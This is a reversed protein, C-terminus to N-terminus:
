LMKKRTITIMQISKCNAPYQCHLEHDGMSWVDWFLKSSMLLSTVPGGESDPLGLLSRAQSRSMSFSLNHPIQGSYGDYGHHGKSHIYIVSILGDKAITAEIGLKKPLFYGFDDLDEEDAEKFVPDHGIRRICEALHEARQNLYTIPNNFM